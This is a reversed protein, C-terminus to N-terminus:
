WEPLRKGVDTILNGASPDLNTLIFFFEKAINIGNVVEAKTIVFNSADGTILTTTGTGNENM